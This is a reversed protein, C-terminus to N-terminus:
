NLFLGLLLTSLQEKYVQMSNMLKEHSIWHQPSWTWGWCWNNRTTLMLLQWIDRRQSLKLFHIISIFMTAVVYQSLFIPTNVHTSSCTHKVLWEGGSCLGTGWSNRPIQFTELERSFVINLSLNQPSLTGFMKLDGALHFNNRLPFNAINQKEGNGWWRWNGKEM